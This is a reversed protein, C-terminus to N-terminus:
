ERPNPETSDDDNHIFIYYIKYMIPLLSSPPCCIHLLTPFPLDSSPDMSITVNSTAQPYCMSWKFEDSCINPFSPTLLWSYISINDNSRSMYLKILLRYSSLWFKQCADNEIMSNFEGDGTSLYNWRWMSITVNHAYSTQHSISYTTNPTSRWVGSLSTGVVSLIERTKGYSRQSWPPHALCNNWGGLRVDKCLIEYLNPAPTM